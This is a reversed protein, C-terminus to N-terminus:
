PCSIDNLIAFEGFREIAAANYAHAAEEATKFTGLYKQKHTEIRIQARWNGSPVRWIGRYPQSRPYRTYSNNQTQTAVRLNSRCCNLGNFDIHDVLVDKETDLVLRHLFIEYTSYKIKFDAPVMAAAYVTKPMPVSHWTFNTAVHRDCEDILAELGGPLPIHVIGSKDVIWQSNREVRKLQYFYSSTNSGM